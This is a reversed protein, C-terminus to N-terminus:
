FTCLRRVIAVLPPAHVKKAQQLTGKSILYVQGVQLTHQFKEVADTFAVM